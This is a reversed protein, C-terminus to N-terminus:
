KKSELSPCLLRYEDGPYLNDWEAQSLNSVLHSCVEDVINDTSLSPLAPIDWIQVTKRAVTALELGDPSFSVSRVVDSHPLRSVEQGLAVDWIYAFYNSSGGALLSGDPSFELSFPEGNMQMTKSVITYGNEVDWLYVIGESSATALWRGDNSYALNHIDGFQLLRAVEEGSETNWIITKNSIGAAIEKGGPHYATSKLAAPNEISKVEEM